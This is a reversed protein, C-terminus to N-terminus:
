MVNCIHIYIYIHTHTHKKYTVLRFHIFYPNNLAIGMKMLLSPCTWIKDVGPDVGPHNPM